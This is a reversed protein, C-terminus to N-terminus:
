LAHSRANLLNTALAGLTTVKDPNVKNGSWLEDRIGALCDLIVFDVQAQLHLDYDEYTQPPDLDILDSDDALQALIYEACCIEHEDKTVPVRFGDTSLGSPVVIHPNAKIIARAESPTM